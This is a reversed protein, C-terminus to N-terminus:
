FSFNIGVVIQRSLPFEDSGGREPDYDKLYKSKTFTFLNSATAYIRAKSVGARAAIKEPFTYGLSVNRIKVYSGDIYYLSSTGLPMNSLRGYSANPRPFRGDPHEPTWYDIMKPSNEEGASNYWGLLQYEMMQGWRTDIFFTLDINKYTLTNSIGLTWKPVPSGLLTRDASTYQGDEEVDEIKVDGPVRDFRAAEEAEDEQWIGRYRYDYFSNIPHGKVLYYDCNTVPDDTTFKTIEEHNSAFSLSTSWSFHQKEINRSQVVAEIGRNLTECINEWIVYNGTKFGGASAPLNRQFLIDKTDTRYVDLAVNLRNRFMGLDLGINWNYSKEWGLNSNGLNQSFMYYPAPTEQFALNSGVAGFSQTAYPAAGANGTVGYGTRLKLNDIRDMGAMFAEDSIRWGLAAAPFSDWKHGQALISAGDWRNSLSLLYRGMYSYNMRVVYSMLQNRVYSSTAVRSQAETVGLNHFLYKDWDVDYGSVSSKEKQNKTWGTVGTLVFNHVGNVDFAYNLINEWKYNYRNNNVVRASSRGDSYGDFSLLGKYLGQRSFNLYSSVVNKLSLGKVPTVEVFFTPNIGLIHYNNVYQNEAMDALPSLNSNGELPSPNVSGDENYPTGLPVQSLVRTFFNSKRRNRDTFAGQLNLGGKLWGNMKQEMNARFSYRTNDDDPQIGQEKYYGVSFYMSSKDTAGSVSLSYNEVSGNRTGLDFWDVWQNNEIAEWEQATFNKSDPDGTNWAGVTRNAERRLRIYDDGSNVEPFKTMGNIGYYANFNTTLKGKTGTKTTIIVVGNAGASGYIATSSADKLVEVSQIDNPNLDEYNGEVGEIIFLPTNSGSISRSGRLTMEMGAGAQGSSRSILLGAVWGNLTEMVNGSPTLTIDDSRVSQIAGTLDRKKIAGYGIVVVEDLGLTEETMTVDVHSRGDVPIEQTEMGIFSFMLVANGPLDNLTYHGDVGTITGTTTGKIMITVGPLPEGQSDTVQGSLTLPNPTLPQSTKPYPLTQIQAQCSTHHIMGSITLLFILTAIRRPFHWPHKFTKQQNKM